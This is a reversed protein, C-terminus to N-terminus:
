AASRDSSSEPGHVSRLAPPAVPLRRPPPGDAYAHPVHAHFEAIMQAIEPKCSGCKSGARTCGTVEEVTTAGQAIAERLAKETVAVCCCVYM